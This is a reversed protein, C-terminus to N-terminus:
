ISNGDMGCKKYMLAYEKLFATCKAILVYSNEPDMLTLVMM